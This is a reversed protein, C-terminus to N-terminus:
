GYCARSSTCSDGRRAAAGVAALNHKWCRWRGASLGEVHGRLDLAKDQGERVGPARDLRRRGEVGHSLRVIAGSGAGCCHHTNARRAEMTSVAHRIAPRM